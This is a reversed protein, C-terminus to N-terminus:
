ATFPGHFRLVLHWFPHGGAASPRLNPTVARKDHITM